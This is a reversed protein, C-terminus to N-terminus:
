PAIVLGNDVQRVGNIQQAAREIADRQAISAVTGSLLLKGNRCSIKVSTAALQLSPTRAIVRELERVLQADRSTQPAEAPETGPADASGSATTAPPARHADQPAASDADSAGQSPATALAARAGDPRALM